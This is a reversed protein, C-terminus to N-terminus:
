MHQGETHYASCLCAPTLVAVYDLLRMAWTFCSATLGAFQQRWCTRTAVHYNYPQAAAGRVHM